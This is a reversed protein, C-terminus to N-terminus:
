FIRGNLYLFIEQLSDIGGLWSKCIEGFVEKAM